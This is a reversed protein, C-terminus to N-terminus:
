LLLTAKVLLTNSKCSFHQEQLQWGELFHSINMEMREKDESVASVRETEKSRQIQKLTKIYCKFLVVAQLKM